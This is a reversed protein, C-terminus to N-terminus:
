LFASRQVQDHEPSVVRVDAVVECRALPRDPWVRRTGAGEDVVACSTATGTPVGGGLVQQRSKPSETDLEIDNSGTITGSTTSESSSIGNASMGM